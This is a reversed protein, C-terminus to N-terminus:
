RSPRNYSYIALKDGPAHGRKLHRALANSRAAFERWSREVGKPGHAVAIRDPVTEAVLDFLDALNWQLAKAEM